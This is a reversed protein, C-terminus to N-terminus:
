KLSWNKVTVANVSKILLLILLYYIVRYISGPLFPIIWFGMFNSIVVFGLFNKYRKFYEYFLSILSGNILSILIVGIIGFNLFQEVPGGFAPTFGRKGAEPYYKETVYKVIGYSYPKASYFARPVYQWFDSLYERGLEYQFNEEFDRFFLRGNNYFDSYQLMKRAYNQTITKPDLKLKGYDAEGPILELKSNNVKESTRKQKKDFSYKAIQRDYVVFILSFLFIAIFIVVFIGKFKIRNIFYNYFVISEWFTFLVAGKSGWFYNLLIFLATAIILYKFNKIRFFLLLLFCFNVAALSTAYLHGNGSRYLHYGLRPAAIWNYLGFGSATTMYIYVSVAYFLLLFMFLDLVRCSINSINFRDAVNGFVALAKKKKLIYGLSFFLYSVLIIYNFYIVSEVEKNVLLVYQLLPIIVLKVADMLTRYSHPQVYNWGDKKIVYFAVIAYVM